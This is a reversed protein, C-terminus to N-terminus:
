DRNKLQAQLWVPLSDKLPHDTGEGAMSLDISRLMPLCSRGDLPPLSKLGECGKLNLVQLSTLATIGEPLSTLQWCERLDLEQCCLLKIKKM